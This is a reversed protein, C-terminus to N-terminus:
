LMHPGNLAKERHEMFADYLRCDLANIDRILALTAPDVDGIRIRSPTVNAREIVPPALGCRSYLSAILRDTDPTIVADDFWSTLIALAAQWDERGCLLRTQMNSMEIRAFEALTMGGVQEFQPHSPSQAIYNYASLVRAVPDRVVTLRQYSDIGSLKERYDPLWGHGGFVHYRSARASTMAHFRRQSREESVAFVRRPGYIDGLANWLSTGACKPIHFFFLKPLEGLKQRSLRPPRLAQTLRQFRDRTTM